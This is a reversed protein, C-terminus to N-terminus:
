ARSKGIVARGSSGDVELITPKALFIDHWATKAGPLVSQLKQVEPAIEIKIPLAYAGQLGLRVTSLRSIPVDASNNRVDEVRIFSNLAPWKDLFRCLEAPKRGKYASLVISDKGRALVL